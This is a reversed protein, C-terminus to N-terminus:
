NWQMQLAAASFRHTPNCIVVACSLIHVTEIGFCVQAALEVRMKSYSTLHIHEYKVRPLLILGPTDTAEYVRVLHQWSIEKGNIQEFCLMNHSDMITVGNLLSSFGLHRRQSHANSNAWCNWTTKQLHPVDSMFYMKRDDNTANEMRYSVLDASTRNAQLIRCLKRNPSAGNSTLCIVNFGLMELGLIAESILPYLQYASVGSTPFNHIPVESSHHSGTCSAGAHTHRHRSCIHIYM